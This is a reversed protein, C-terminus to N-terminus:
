IVKCHKGVCIPFEDSDFEGNRQCEFNREGILSYQPDCTFRISQGADFVDVGRPEINGNEPEQPRDCQQAASTLFLVQNM